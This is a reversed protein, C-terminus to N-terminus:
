QEFENAVKQRSVCQDAAQVYGVDVHQGPQASTLLAGLVTENQQLAISM